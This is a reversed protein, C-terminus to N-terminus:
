KLLRIILPHYASSISFYHEVVSLIGIDQVLLHKFGAFIYDEIKQVREINHFIECIPESLASDRVLQVVM